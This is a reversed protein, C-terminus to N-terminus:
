VLYPPGRLFRIFHPKSKYIRYTIITSIEVFFVQPIKMEEYQLDLTETVPVKFFFQECNHEKSNSNQFKLENSHIIACKAHDVGYFHLVNGVNPSLFVGILFVSLSYKKWNMM